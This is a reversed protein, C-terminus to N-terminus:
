SDLNTESDRAIEVFIAPEALANNRRYMENARTVIAVRRRVVDTNKKDRSFHLYYTYPRANAEARFSRAALSFKAAIDTGAFESYCVHSRAVRACYRTYM